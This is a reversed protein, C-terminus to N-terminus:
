AKATEFSLVNGDADFDCIFAVRKTPSLVAIGELSVSDNDDIVYAIPRIDLLEDPDGVAATKDLSALSAKVKKHIKRVWLKGYAGFYDSWYASAKEDLAKKSLSM